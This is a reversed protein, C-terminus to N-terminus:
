KGPDERTELAEKMKRLGDARHSISNKTEQPLAAFSRSYGDPIFLSDYGFGGSGTEKTDIRGDCRGEVQIYEGDPFCVTVACAFHAARQEEPVGDLAELLKKRNAADDHGEGAFRASYVGPAGGLYDVCLGSDDAIAALGTLKAVACAKQASNELFTSGTEPVDLDALGADAMSILRCGFQKTLAEIERLKGKNQTAAVITKGFLGNM